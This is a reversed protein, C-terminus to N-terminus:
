QKTKQGVLCRGGIFILNKVKIVNLDMCHKENAVVHNFTFIIVQTPTDVPGFGEVVRQQRLDLRVGVGLNLPLLRVVALHPKLTVRWQLGSLTSTQTALSFLNEM